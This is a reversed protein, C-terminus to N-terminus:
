RKEREVPLLVRFTVRRDLETLYNPSSRLSPEAAAVGSTRLIDSSIGRDVLAKAVEDARRKSLLVNKEEAGSQDTHGSIEVAIDRRRVRAYEQLPILQAQILDLKALESPEIRTSNLAFRIIQKEIQQKQAQVSRALAFEPDLSLYPEWRASVKDPNLGSTQLLQEPDAALPDRLGVVSYGGWTKEASTLVIGPESRLRTIYRTWRRNQDWWYAIALVVVIALLALAWTGKRTKKFSLGAHRGLLCGELLPRTGALTAADGNFASMAAGFRDHIAELTRQLLSRLEVPPAGTVVAAMLAVPGHQLWVTYEGVQMTELEDTAKGSFSDRVFDQVATLMGSILETDQVAHAGAAVHQLLLGTERHILFVQEVRYRLSRTLAIEGFSKGTRLAEARWKLSEWSLSRELVQNLSEVMGRLAHAVAKRVAEGIIPFLSTALLHPNREVSVRVAEEVLPNLASQLDRDRRARLAIAEAVIQSLETARIAPDDMRRQLEQLRAQEPGLLLQRLRTYEGNASLPSEQAQDNPPATSM